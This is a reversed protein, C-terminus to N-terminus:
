PATAACDHQEIRGDAGLSACIGSRGRYRLGHGGDPLDIREPRDDSARPLPAPAPSAASEADTPARLQGTAPDRYAQMGSGGQPSGSCAALVLGSALVLTSLRPGPLM